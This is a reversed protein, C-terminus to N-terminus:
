QKESYIGGEFSLATGALFALLYSFYRMVHDKKENQSLINKISKTSSLSLQFVKESHSSDPSLFIFRLAKKFFSQPRLTEKQKTYTLPDGASDVAGWPM